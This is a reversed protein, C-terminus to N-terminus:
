AAETLDENEGRLVERVESLIRDAEFGGKNAANEVAQRVLRMWDTTKETEDKGLAARLGNGAAQVANGFRTRTGNSKQVPEDNPYVLMAIALAHDKVTERTVKYETVYTLYKGAGRMDSRVQTVIDKVTKSTPDLTININETM